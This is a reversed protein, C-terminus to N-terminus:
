LRDKATGIHRAVQYLNGFRSSPRYLLPRSTKDTTQFGIKILAKPVLRTAKTLNM